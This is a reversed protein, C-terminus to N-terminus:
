IEMKTFGAKIEANVRRIVEGAKNVERLGQGTIHILSMRRDKPNVKRRVSGLTELRDILGTVTSNDLSLLQALESMARGTKERLLFLIGAQVLTIKVGANMLEDRLHLRLRQQATFVLYILRDEKQSM